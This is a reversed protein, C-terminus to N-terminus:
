TQGAPDTKSYDPACPCRKTGQCDALRLLLGRMNRRGHYMRTKVTNAPCDVIQAIEECTHGFRYFLELATRQEKTLQVLAAGVWEGVEGDSWPEYVAEIDRMPEEHRERRRNRRLRNRGIHYAIGMIWTSVKSSGRFRPASRWIAWLTDNTIEATLEPCRTIQRTFSAIRGNYRACIENFAAEDRAAIAAVLTRDLDNRRVAGLAPTGGSIMKGSASSVSVQATQATDPRGGSSLTRAHM